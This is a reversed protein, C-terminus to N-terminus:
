DVFHLGLIGGDGAGHMKGACHVQVGDDTGVSGDALEFDDASVRDQCPRRPFCHQLPAVLRRAEVSFGDFDFGEDGYIEDEVGLLFCPLLVFCGRGIIM